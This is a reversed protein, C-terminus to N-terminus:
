NGIFNSFKACSCLRAIRKFYSCFSLFFSGVITGALLLTKMKGALSSQANNGRKISKYNIVLIGLEVGIIGLFLPNVTALLLLCVIGFAKDSLGDLLSGFFSEVHLRRALQGDIFDTVFFGMAALGAMLSGGLFYVPVIAITGLSRLSTILNVFIKNRIHKKREKNHEVKIFKKEEM